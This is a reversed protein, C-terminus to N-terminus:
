ATPLKLAGGTRGTPTTGCGAAGGTAGFLPTISYQIKPTSTNLGM